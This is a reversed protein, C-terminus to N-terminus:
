LSVLLKFTPLFYLVFMERVQYTTLSSFHIKQANMFPTPVSHALFPGMELVSLLRMMSEQTYISLLLWTMKIWSQEMGSYCARSYIMAIRFDPLIGSNSVFIPRIKSVYMHSKKYVPLFKKKWKAPVGLLHVSFLRLTVCIWKM